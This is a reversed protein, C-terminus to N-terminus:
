VGKTVNQRWARLCSMVFTIIVFVLILHVDNAISQLTDNCAPDSVLTESGAQLSEVVETGDNTEELSETGSDFIETSELNETENQLLNETNIESV